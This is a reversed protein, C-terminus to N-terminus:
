GNTRRLNEARELAVLWVCGPAHSLDRYVFQEIVDDVVTTAGCGPCRVTVRGTRRDTTCKLLSTGPGIIVASFESGRRKESM